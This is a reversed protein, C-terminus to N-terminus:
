YGHAHITYNIKIIKLVLILDISRIRQNRIRKSHADGRCLYYQSFSSFHSKKSIINPYQHIKKASVCVGYM